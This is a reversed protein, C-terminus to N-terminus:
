PRRRGVLDRAQWLGDLRMGGPTPAGALRLVAAKGLHLGAGGRAEGLALLLALEGLWPQHGVAAVRPGRRAREGRGPAALAALVALLADDPPGALGLTVVLEGAVLGALHDATRVARERPSLLLREFRVGRRELGHALRESARLGRATLPRAADSSGPPMDELAVAEAHRILWLEM